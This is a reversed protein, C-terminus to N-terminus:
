YVGLIDMLTKVHAISAIEAQSIGPFVGARQVETRMLRSISQARRGFAKSRLLFRRTLVHLKPAADQQALAPGGGLVAADPTSGADACAAPASGVLRCKDTGPSEASAMGHM